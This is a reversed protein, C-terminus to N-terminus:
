LGLHQSLSREQDPTLGLDRARRREREGGVPDGTRFLTASHLFRFHPDEPSHTLLLEVESSAKGWDNDAILAAVLHTRVDIREPGEELLARYVAVEAAVQGNAGMVAAKGLRADIDDPQTALVQDFTRDADQTLGLALYARGIGDQAPLFEPKSQAAQRYFRLALAPVGWDRWHRARAMIEDLQRASPLLRGPRPAPEARPEEGLYSSLGLGRVLEAFRGADVVTAGHRFLEAQLALPLRGPTLVVLKVPSDGVQELLRRIVDLSVHDPNELFAFLFGDNTRLLMGEPGRRVTDLKQGMSEVLRSVLEPFASGAM